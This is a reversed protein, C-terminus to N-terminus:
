DPGDRVIAVEIRNGCKGCEFAVIKDFELAPGNLHIYWLQGRCQECTSVFERDLFIVKSVTGRKAM